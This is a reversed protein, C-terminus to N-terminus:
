ESVDVYFAPSEEPRRYELSIFFLFCFMGQPGM